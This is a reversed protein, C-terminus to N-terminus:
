APTSASAPRRGRRSRVPLHTPQYAFPDPNPAIQPLMVMNGLDAARVRIAGKGVRRSLLRGDKCMSYVSAKSTRLREAVEDVTLWEDAPQPQNKFNSEALVLMAAAQPDGTMAVYRRYLEEVM